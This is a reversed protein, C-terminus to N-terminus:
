RGARRREGGRSGFATVVRRAPVSVAASAMTLLLSRALEAFFSGREGRMARDPHRWMSKALVWRDRRRRQTFSTVRHVVLAVAGATALLLLGGVAMLQRVHRRLQLRLDLADHRRRDLQEVTRLLKSRAQNAERALEDRSKGNHNM